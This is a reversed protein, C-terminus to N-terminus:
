LDTSHRIQDVEELEQYVARLQQQGSRAREGLVILSATAAAIGTWWLARRSRAINVLASPSADWPSPRAKPPRGVLASRLDLAMEGAARYRDPPRKELAKRIVLDVDRSASGRPLPPAATHLIAHITKVVSARSTAYPLAGSFLEYGIAGLSYIDS